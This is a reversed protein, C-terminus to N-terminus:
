VVHPRRAPRRYGATEALEILEGVKSQILLMYDEEALMPRPDMAKLTINNDQASVHWDWWTAEVNPAGPADYRQFHDEKMITGILSLYPYRGLGEGNGRSVFIIEKVHVLRRLFLVLNTINAHGAAWEPSSLLVLEDLHLQELDYFYSGWSEMESARLYYGLKRIERLNSPPLEQLRISSTHNWLLFRTMRYALRAFDTNFQRCVLLLALNESPRYDNGYEQCDIDPIGAAPSQELAYEAIRLRLEVPLALIM